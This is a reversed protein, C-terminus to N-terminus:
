VAKNQQKEREWRKKASISCHKCFEESMKMGKNWSPKGLNLTKFKENNKGHLRSHESRSLVELNNLSNDHANGNKHHVVCGDFYDLYKMAVVTHVGLVRRNHNNDFLLVQFYNNSKFPTIIENHKYVNGLEDVDYDPFKEAFNFM